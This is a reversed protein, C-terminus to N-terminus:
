STHGGASTSIPWNMSWESAFSDARGEVVEKLSRAFLTLARRIQPIYLYQNYLGQIGKLGHGIVLEAVVDPVGLEAMASRVLRRTDHLIIHNQAAEPKMDLLVKEIRARLATMAKSFGNIPKQGNTTSFVYEGHNPGQSQRIEQLLAIMEDTLPVLHELNEEGNKVRSRPVTWLKMDFDFETWRARALETKRVAGVFLVAQFFRGYPYPTATTAIWYARVEYINPLVTRKKKYLKLQKPKIGALPNQSLGYDERREPSMAWDFFSKMYSFCVFAQGMAPRDRIAAIVISIDKDTVEDLPKGLWPNRDPNLFERRITAIEKPVQRNRPRSPLDAIYDEFVSNATRRVTMTKEAEAKKQEEKPDLGRAVQEGWEVAIARAKDLSTEPFYGITRRVPDKGNAIRGIYVFAKKKTGIRLSLNQTASDMVEYRGKKAFSLAKISDETLGRNRAM